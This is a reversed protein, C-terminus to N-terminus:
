LDNREQIDKQLTGIVYNLQDVLQYLYSRLQEVQQEPETATIHPLPLNYM